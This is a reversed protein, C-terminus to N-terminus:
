GPSPPPRAPAIERPFDRLLPRLAEPEFNGQDDCRGEQALTFLREMFREWELPPRFCVRLLVPAESPNWGIHPIGPAAVIVDGTRATREVGGIRFLATGELVEWREEMEPHVHEPTRLGKRPWLQDFELLEGGTEATTRRFVIREGTHPNELTDGPRAM